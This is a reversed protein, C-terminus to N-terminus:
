VYYVCHWIFSLLKESIHLNNRLKKRRWHMRLPSFCILFFRFSFFLFSFLWICLSFLTKFFILMYYFHKMKSAYMWSLELVQLVNPSMNHIDFTKFMCCCRQWLVAVMSQYQGVYEIISVWYKSWFNFYYLIFLFYRM